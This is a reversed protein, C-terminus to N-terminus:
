VRVFRTPMVRHNHCFLQLNDGKLVRGWVMVTFCCCFLVSNVTRSGNLMLYLLRGVLCVYVVLLSAMILFNNHERVVCDYTKDIRSELIIIVEKVFIVCAPKGRIIAPFLARCCHLPFSGVEELEKELM